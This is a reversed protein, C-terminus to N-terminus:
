RDLRPSLGDRSPPRFLSLLRGLFGRREEALVRTLPSNQFLVRPEPSPKSIAIPAPRSTTPDASVRKLHALLRPGSGGAVRESLPRTQDPHERLDALYALVAPRGEGRDNLLYHVWAWSERYDSPRMEGVSGLAELHALNPKWGSKLDDPLRAIHEPNLGAPDRTVEFYEALGEDLWLPLNGVTAHLVAHTTEHRLDEDLRENFFTYVLRQTGKALFFARRHPLEPHHFTLFQTFSERDRLVYIEIPPEIGDAKLGLNATLDVVLSQIARIVHSDHAIPVGSYVVFPGTRLEHRTPVLPQGPSGAVTACGALVVALLPSGGGASYRGVAV